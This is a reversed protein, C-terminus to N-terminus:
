IDEILGGDFVDEEDLYEDNAPDFFVVASDVPADYYLGIDAFMLWEGSDTVSHEVESILYNENDTIPGCFETVNDPKDGVEGSKATPNDFLDDNPVVHLFDGAQADLVNSVQEGSKEPVIQITGSNTNKMRERLAVEAIGPLADRKARSSKVKVTSGYDIDQRAAVGTAIYDGTGGEDFWGLVDTDLGPEDVWAGEVVVSQIPERGHSIQPDKYRWVRDDDPAAVHKIGSAEPVGVVLDGTRNVWSSLKFSQNMKQVAKEPSIQDFDVAYTSNTVNKTSEIGEYFPAAVVFSGGVLKRDEDDIGAFLVDGILDNTAKDVVEEYIDSLIVAERTIDVLGDALCKQLDRAELHTYNDGYNVFDPRFMLQQVPTGDHCVEVKSRGYLQGDIYRTHPKMEEGVETPLKARLFDYDVRAQRLSMEVPRVEFPEDQDVGLFKITWDHSCSM